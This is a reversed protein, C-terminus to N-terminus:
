RLRSKIRPFETSTGNFASIALFYSLMKVKTFKLGNLFKEFMNTIQLIIFMKQVEEVKGSVM